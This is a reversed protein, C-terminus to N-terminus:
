PAAHFIELSTKSPTHEPLSFAMMGCCTAKHIDSGRLNVKLALPAIGM